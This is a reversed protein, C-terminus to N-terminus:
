PKTETKVTTGSADTKINTETSGMPEPVARSPKSYRDAIMARAWKSFAGMGSAYILWAAFFYITLDKTYALWCVIWTSFALGTMQGIKDNDLYIRGDASRTSFAHWFELDNNRANVIKYVAWVAAFFLILNFAQQLTM